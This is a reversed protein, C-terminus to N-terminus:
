DVIRPLDGGLNFIGPLSSATVLYRLPVEDAAPHGFHRDIRDFVRLMDELLAPTSSPRDTPNLYQWLAKQRRDYVLELQTLGKPDILWPLIHRDAPIAHDARLAAPGANIPVVGGAPLQAAAGRVTIANMPKG